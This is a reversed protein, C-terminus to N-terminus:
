VGGKRTRVADLCTLLVARRPNLHEFYFNHTLADFAYSHAAGRVRGFVVMVAAKEEAAEKARITHDWLELPRWSSRTYELEGEWFWASANPTPHYFGCIEAAVAETLEEDTLEAVPKLTVPEEEPSTEAATREDWAKLPALDMANETMFTLFHSRPIRVSQTGPITYGRLKGSDFLLRARNPSVKLIESVDQVTLIHKM